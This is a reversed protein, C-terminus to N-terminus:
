VRRVKTGPCGVCTGRGRSGAAAHTVTCGGRGGACSAVGALPFRPTARVEVNWAREMGTDISSDGPLRLRNVKRRVDVDCDIKRSPFLPTSIASHDQNAGGIVGSPTEIGLRRWMSCTRLLAHEDPMRAANHLRPPLNGHPRAVLQRNQCFKSFERLGNRCPLHVVVPLDAGGHRRRGRLGGAERGLGGPGHRDLMRPAGTVEVTESFTLLMRITEGLGYTDDGGADSVVGGRDGVSGRGGADVAPRGRQAPSWDDTM